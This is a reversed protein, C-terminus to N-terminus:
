LSFNEKWKPRITREGITTFYKIASESGTDNTGIEVYPSPDL